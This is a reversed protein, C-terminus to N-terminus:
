KKRKQPIFASAIMLLLVMVPIAWKTHRALLGLTIFILLLTPAFWRQRPFWRVAWFFLGAATLAFLTWALISIIWGIPLM